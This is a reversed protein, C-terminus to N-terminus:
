PTEEEREGGQPGRPLASVGEPSPSPPGWLLSSPLTGTRPQAQGSPDALDM